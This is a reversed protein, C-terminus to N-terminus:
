QAADAGAPGNVFVLKTSTGGIRIEQIAGNDTKISTERNKSEATEVRVPVEISEKKGLVFLAKNEKLEVKYEGPKLTKGGVTSDTFITVRYTNAASAISLALVSFAILLKHTM